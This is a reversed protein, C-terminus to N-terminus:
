IFLAEDPADVIEETKAVVERKTAEKRSALEARREVEVRAIFQNRFDDVDEGEYGATKATVHSLAMERTVGTDALAGTDLDSVFLAPGERLLAETDVGDTEDIMSQITRDLWSDQAARGMSAQEVAAFKPATYAETNEAQLYAVVDSIEKHEATALLKIEDLTEADGLSVGEAIRTSAEKAIAKLEGMREKLSAETRDYDADLRSRLESIPTSSATKQSSKDVWQWKDEDAGHIEVQAFTGNATRITVQENGWVDRTRGLIQAEVGNPTIITTATKKATERANKKIEKDLSELYELASSSVVEYNTGSAILKGEHYASIQDGEFAYVPNLNSM